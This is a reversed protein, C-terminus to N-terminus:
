KLCSNAWTVLGGSSPAGADNCSCTCSPASPVALVLDHTDYGAPCPTGADQSFLAPSRFQVANTCSALGGDGCAFPEEKVDKVVDGTVDGTADGSADFLVDRGGVENIGCGVFLFAVALRRM